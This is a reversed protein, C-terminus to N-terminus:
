PYQIGLGSRVDSPQVDVLTEHSLAPSRVNPGLQFAQPAPPMAVEVIPKRLHLSSAKKIASCRSATQCTILVVSALRTTHKTQAFLRVTNSSYASKAAFSLLAVWPFLYCSNALFPSGAFPRLPGTKLTARLRRFPSRITCRSEINLAIKRARLRSRDCPRSISAM